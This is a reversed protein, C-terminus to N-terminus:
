KELQLLSRHCAARQLSVVSSNTHPRCLIFSFFSVRSDCLHTNRSFSFHICALATHVREGHMSLMENLLSVYLKSALLISIDATCISMQQKCTENRKTRKNLAQLPFSHYVSFLRINLQKSNSM